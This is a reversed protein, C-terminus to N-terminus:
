MPCRHGLPSAAAKDSEGHGVDRPRPGTAENHRHQATAMEVSEGRPGLLSHRHPIPPGQEPIQNPTQRDREVWNMIGIM